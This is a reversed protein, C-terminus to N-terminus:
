SSMELEVHIQRLAAMIRDLSEVTLNNGDRHFGKITGTSVGARSAIAKHLQNRSPYINAQDLAAIERWAWNSLDKALPKM